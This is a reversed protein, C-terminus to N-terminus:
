VHEISTLGAVTIEYVSKNGNAQKGYKIKKGSLGL